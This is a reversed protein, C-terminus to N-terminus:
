TLINFKLHMTKGNIHNIKNHPPYLVVDVYGFRSGLSFKYCILTEEM